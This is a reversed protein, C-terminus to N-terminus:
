AAGAKAEAVESRVRDAFADGEARLGAPELRAATEEAAYRLVRSRRLPPLDEAQQLALDVARMAKTEASLGASQTGM